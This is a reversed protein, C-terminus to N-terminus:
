QNLMRKDLLQLKTLVPSLQVFDTSTAEDESSPLLEECEFEDESVAEENDDLSEFDMFTSDVYPNTAVHANANTITNTNTNTPLGSMRRELAALTRKTKDFRIDFAAGTSMPTGFLFDHRGEMQIEDEEDEDDDMEVQEFDLDTFYAVENGNEEEEDTPVKSISADDDDDDEDEDEDEADDDEEDSTAWEELEFESDEEEEEEEEGDNSVPAVNSILTNQKKHAKLSAPWNHECTNELLITPNLIAWPTYFLAPHLNKGPCKVCSAFLAPTTDNMPTTISPITVPRDAVMSSSSSCGNSISEKSQKARLKEDLTTQWRWIDLERTSWSTNQTMPLHAMEAQM